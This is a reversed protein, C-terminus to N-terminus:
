RGARRARPGTLHHVPSHTLLFETMAPPSDFRWPLTHRQTRVPTLGAATLREHVVTARGWDMVDAIGPQPPLWHRMLKTMAGMFGDPTWATFGVLGGAVLVRRLEALAVAPRPVFILGFSSLVIDFSGDALPLAEADAEHWDVALGAATTAQRGLEVMRPSLDCATVHAGQEAALLAVTGPGAALDLVQRGVAPAAAGVLAAAAPALREAIAGYDALGWLERMGAIYQAVADDNGSM